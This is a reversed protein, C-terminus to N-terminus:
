KKILEEVEDQSLLNYEYNDSNVWTVKFGDNQFEKAYNIMRELHSEAGAESDVRRNPNTEDKLRRVTEAPSVCLMIIRHNCSPLMEKVEKPVCRNEIESWQVKILVSTNSNSALNAVEEKIKEIDRRDRTKISEESKVVNQCFSFRKNLFRWEAKGSTINNIIKEKGAGSPGFIWVIQSQENM